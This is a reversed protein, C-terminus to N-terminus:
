IKLFPQGHRAVAAQLRCDHLKCCHIITNIETHKRVLLLSPPIFPSIVFCILEIIALDALDLGCPLLKLPATNSVGYCACQDADEEQVTHQLAILVPLEVLCVEHLLPNRAVGM